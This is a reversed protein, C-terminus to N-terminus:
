LILSDGQPKQPPRSAGMIAPPVAPWDLMESGVCCAADRGRFASVLPASRLHRSSDFTSSTAISARAAITSIRRRSDTSNRAPLQHTGGGVPSM